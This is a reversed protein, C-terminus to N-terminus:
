STRPASPVLGVVSVFGQNPLATQGPLNSSRSSTSSEQHFMRLSASCNDRWGGDAMFSHGRQRAPLINSPKMSSRPSLLEFFTPWQRSGNRAYLFRWEQENYTSPAWRAAEFLRLLEEDSLPEGTMARPSWRQLFLTEIPYDPTRFQLPDPLQSM